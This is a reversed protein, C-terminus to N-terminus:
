DLEETLPRLRQWRAEECSGQRSLSTDIEQGEWVGTVTAEQPGYVTDTCVTGDRVETFLVETGQEPAETPGGGDVGAEVPEDEQLEPVEVTSDSDTEFEEATEALARCASHDSELDGTCSLTQVWARDRDSVRVELQGVPGELEREEVPEEVPEEARGESGTTSTTEVDQPPLMSPGVLVAYALAGACCSGALLKTGLPVRNREKRHTRSM